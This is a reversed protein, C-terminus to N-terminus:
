LFQIKKYILFFYLLIYKSCIINNEDMKLLNNLLEWLKELINKVSQNINKEENLRDNLLFTMVYSSLKELYNLKIANNENKLKSCNILIQILNEITDFENEEVIDAFNSIKDNLYNFFGFVNESILNNFSKFDELYENKEREDIQNNDVYFVSQNYDNSTSLRKIHYLDTFIYNFEKLIKKVFDFNEPNFFKVATSFIKETYYDDKLVLLKNKQLYKRLKLLSISFGQDNLFGIDDYNEKDTLVKIIGNFYEVIQINFENETFKTNTKRTNINIDNDLYLCIFSLFKSKIEPNNVISM